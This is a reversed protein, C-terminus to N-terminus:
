KVMTLIWSIIVTLPFLSETYEPIWVVDKSWGTGVIMQLFLLPHGGATSSFARGAFRQVAIQLM